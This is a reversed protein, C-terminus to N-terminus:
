TVEWDTREIDELDFLHPDLVDSLFSPSVVGTTKLQGRRDIFWYWKKGWEPLRMRGDEPRICRVADVFTM